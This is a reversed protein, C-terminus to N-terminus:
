WFRLLKELAEGYKMVARRRLIQGNPDDGNGIVPVNLSFTNMNYESYVDNECEETPHRLIRDPYANSPFRNPDEPVYYWVASSANLLNMAKFGQEEHWHDGSIIFDANDSYRKNIVGLSIIVEVPINKKTLNTCLTEAGYFEDGSGTFAIVINEPLNANLMLSLIFAAPATNEYTGIFDGDETFDTWCNKIGDPVDINASVIVLPKNIMSLPKQSYLHYLGDSDIRRYRSNWLLEGIADLRRSVTFRKGNDRNMVMIKGLINTFNISM